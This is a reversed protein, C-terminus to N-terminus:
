ARVDACADTVTGNKLGEGAKQWRYEGVLKEIREQWLFFDVEIWKWARRQYIMQCIREEEQGTLIRFQQLFWQNKQEDSLIPLHYEKLFQKQILRIRQRIQFWLEGYAKAYRQNQELNPIADRNKNLVYILDQLKQFHPIIEMGRQVDQLIAYDM